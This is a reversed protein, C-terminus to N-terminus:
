RVEKFIYEPFDVEEEIAKIAANGWEKRPSPACAGSSRMSLSSIM